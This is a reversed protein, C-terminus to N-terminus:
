SQHNLPLLVLTHLQIEKWRVKSAGACIAKQGKTWRDSSGKGVLPNEGAVGRHWRQLIDKREWCGDGALAFGNVTARSHGGRIEQKKPELFFSSIVKDMGSGAAHLVWQHVQRSM